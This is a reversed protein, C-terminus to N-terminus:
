PFNWSRAFAKSADQTRLAHLIRLAHTPVLLTAHYPQRQWLIVGHEVWPDRAHAPIWQPWEGRHRWPVGRLNVTVGWPQDILAAYTDM